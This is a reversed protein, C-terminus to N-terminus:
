DRWYDGEDVEGKRIESLVLNGNHSHFLLTGEGDPLLHVRGHDHVSSADQQGDLYYSFHVAVTGFNQIHLDWGSDARQWSCRIDVGDAASFLVSHWNVSAPAQAPLASGCLLIAPVFLSTRLLRSAPM